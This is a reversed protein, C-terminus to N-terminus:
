LWTDRIDQKLICVAPGDSVFLSACNKGSNKAHYMAQDAERLLNSECLTSQSETHEAPNYLRVGLSASIHIIGDRTPLEERTETMLRKVIPKLQELGTIDPVLVVFEDGGIRAVTDGERVAVQMRAALTRLLKDGAEHGLVDNVAKFGDLDLYVVGMLSKSRNARVLGQHLRDALLVRNPLGTLADYHAMQQLHTIDTSIGLVGGVHDMDETDYVPSKIELFVHRKKDSSVVEIQNRVNEGALAREDSHRIQECADPPFLEEDRVGNLKHASLNFYELCARNAYVYRRDADKIYVYSTLTDLAKQFRESEVNAARLAIENNRMTETMERAIMEARQRTRLQSLMLSFLLVSLLVGSVFARRVPAYSSLTLHGALPEFELLWQHGHIDLARHQLLSSNAASQKLGPSAFMLNEPSAIGDDYIRLGVAEMNVRTWDGIVGDMLDIMRFPSYTWGILAEQRTAITSIDAGHQYVPVYILMGAQEGSGGEQVLEVRGSLSADNLDRAREMAARRVPEAYMDYGFALLNRESFPELYVISSYIDRQGTPFVQYDPFGESRVRQQHADLEEDPILQSFGIGQVGALNEALRLNDVYARWEARTLEESSHFLGSAGRLLLAYSLLREEIRL